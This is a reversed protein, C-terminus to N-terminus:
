SVASVSSMRTILAGRNSCKLDKFFFFQHSARCNIPLLWFAEREAQKVLTARWHAIGM